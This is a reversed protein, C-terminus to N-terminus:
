QGPGASMAPPAPTRSAIHNRGAISPPMHNWARHRATRILTGAVVTSAHLGGTLRRRSNGSRMRLPPERTAPLVRAGGALSPAPGSTRPLAPCRRQERHHGGRRRLRPGETRRARRETAGVRLATAANRASGRVLRPRRVNGSGPRTSSVGGPVLALSARPTTTVLRTSMVEAVTMNWAKSVGHNAAAGLVDHESVVGILKGERLILLHRIASHRMYSRAMGLHVCENVSVLKRVMVDSVTRSPSRTPRRKM